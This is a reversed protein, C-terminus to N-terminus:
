SSRGQIGRQEVTLLKASVHALNRTGEVKELVTKIMDYEAPRGSLTQRVLTNEDVQNGMMSFEERLDKARTKYKIISDDGSKKLIIL